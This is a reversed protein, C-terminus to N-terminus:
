KAQVTHRQVARCGGSATIDRGELLRRLERSKPVSVAKLGRPMRQKTDAKKRTIRFM